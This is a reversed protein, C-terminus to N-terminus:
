TLWRDQRSASGSQEVERHIGHDRRGKIRSRRVRVSTHLSDSRRRRSPEKPTLAGQTPRSPGSLRFADCHPTDNTSRGSGRASPGPLGGRLPPICTSPKNQVARGTPRHLIPKGIFCEGVTIAMTASITVITTPNIIMRSHIIQSGAPPLVRGGGGFRSKRQSSELNM